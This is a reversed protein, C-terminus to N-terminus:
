GYGFGSPTYPNGGYQSRTPSYVPVVTPHWQAPQSPAATPRVPPVPIPLPPFYVSPVVIPPTTQVTQSYTINTTQPCCTTINNVVPQAPTFPAVPANSAGFGSFFGKVGDLIGQLDLPPVPLINPFQPLTLPPINYNVTTNGLGAVGQSGSSGATVAPAEGFNFPAPISASPFMQKYGDDAVAVSPTTSPPKALWWLGISVAIGAM